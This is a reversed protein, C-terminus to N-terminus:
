FLSVPSVDHVEFKGALGGDDGAGGCADAQGDGLTQGGFARDDGDAPATLVLQVRRRLGDRRMAGDVGNQGIGGCRFARCRQDRRRGISVDEDVIQADVLGLSEGVDGIFVPVMKELDIHHAARAKGAM